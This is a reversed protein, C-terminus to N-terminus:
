ATQRIAREVLKLCHEARDRLADRGKDRSQSLTHLEDAISLAALVAVKVTDVTGTARAVDRMRTDVHKALDEVYAPDLDGAVHYTQDFIQVKTSQTV